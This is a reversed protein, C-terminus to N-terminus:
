KVKVKIKKTQTKGCTNKATIRISYKGTQTYWHDAISTYDGNKEFDTCTVESNDDGWTIQVPGEGHVGKGNALNEEYCWNEDISGCRASAYGSFDVHWGAEDKEIVSPKSSVSIKPKRKKSASKAFIIGGLSFIAILVLAIGAGTSIKKNM